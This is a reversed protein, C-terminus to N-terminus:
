AGSLGYGTTDRYGTLAIGALNASRARTASSAGNVQEAGLMSITLNGTAPPTVTISPRPSLGDPISITLAANCWFQKQDDAASLTYNGTLVQAGNPVSVYDVSGRMATVSAVDGTSFPGITRSETIANSYKQIGTSSTVSVRAQTGQALSMSLSDPGVFTFTSTTGITVTTM